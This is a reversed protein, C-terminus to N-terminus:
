VREEYAVTKRDDSNRESDTALATVDVKGRIGSNGADM